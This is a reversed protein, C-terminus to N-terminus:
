IQHMGVPYLYQGPEQWDIEPRLRCLDRDFIRAPVKASGGLFSPLLSPSVRGPDGAAAFRPSDPQWFAPASAPALRPSLTAARLALAQEYHRGIADLRSTIADSQEFAFQPGFRPSAPPQPLDQYHPLAIVSGDPLHREPGPGANVSYHPISPQPLAPGSQAEGEGRLASLPVFPAPLPAIGQIGAEFGFPMSGLRPSTPAVGSSALAPHMHAERVSRDLETWTQTLQRRTNALHQEAQALDQQREQLQKRLRQQEESLAGRAGEPGHAPPRAPAQKPARPSKQRRSRRQPEDAPEAKAAARAQSHQRPQEYFAEPPAFPMFSASPPMGLAPWADAYVHYRPPPHGEGRHHYHHGHSPHRPSAHGERHPHHHEHHGARAPRFATLLRGAIAPCPPLDLSRVFVLSSTTTTITDPRPTGRATTIVTHPCRGLLRERGSM